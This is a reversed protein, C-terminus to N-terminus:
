RGPVDMIYEGDRSRIKGHSIYVPSNDADFWGGVHPKEDPSYVHILAPGNFVMEYGAQDHVYLLGDMCRIRQVGNSAGPISLSFRYEGEWTYVAVANLGGYSLCIYEETADIDNIDMPMDLEEYFVLASGQPVAPIKSLNREWNIHHIILQFALLGVIGWLVPKVKHRKEMSQLLMAM